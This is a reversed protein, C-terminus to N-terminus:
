LSFRNTSKIFSATALLISKNESISLSPHGYLYLESPDQPITLNNRTLIDNVSSTLSERHTIYFPCYLFFHSINEIGENCLCIDSPTDAFNHRKKHHRLQSLGLRLQFLYRLNVPDHLDFTSKLNPRILSILHSKFVGFTPMTEFNTIIRNWTSIANPFFSYSYKDTRCRVDRFVFPLNVPRLRNAPLKEQLYM